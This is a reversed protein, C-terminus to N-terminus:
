VAGMALFAQGAAFDGAEFRARAISGDRFVFELAFPERPDLAALAEAAEAPFRWAQGAKRERPLLTASADEAGSSWITRARASPPLDGTLWPQPAVAADRLVLRAGFPRPQGFWSVVALPADAVDMTGALGFRVPSAGTVSDQVLRYTPSKYAFRDASWDRRAGPLTLRALRKWGAFAHEARGAVTKLDAAECPTRAALARARGASEALQLANSGARLAAGRAQWTAAELAKTLRPEFLRCRADAALVFSREYFREAAGNPSAGAPVAALALALATAAAAAKANIALSGPRM